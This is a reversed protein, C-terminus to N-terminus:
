GDPDRDAETPRPHAPPPAQTGAKTGARGSSPRRHPECRPSPQLQKRAISFRTNEEKRECSAQRCGLVHECVRSLSVQPQSLVSSVM